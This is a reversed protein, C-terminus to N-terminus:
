GTSTGRRIGSKAPFDPRAASRRGARTASRVRVVLAIRDEDRRYGLQCCRRWPGATDFPREVFNNFMLVIHGGDDGPDAADRCVDGRAQSRRDRVRRRFLLENFRPNKWFTDNWPADAAYAIAFMWDVTPRGSWYSQVM